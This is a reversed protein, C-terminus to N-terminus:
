DDSAPGSATEVPAAPLGNKGCAPRKRDMARVKARYRLLDLESQIHISNESELIFCEARGKAIQREVAAAATKNMIAFSGEPEFIDPFDQRGLIKKGTQRNIKPDSATWLREDPPFPERLAYTDDEAVEFISYIVGCFDDDERQFPIARSLDEVPLEVGKSIQGRASRIPLLKVVCSATASRNARYVLCYRDESPNEYLYAGAPTEDDSAGLGALRWGSGAIMGNLPPQRLGSVDFVVRARQHGDYLWM